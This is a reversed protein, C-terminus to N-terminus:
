KKLNFKKKGQQIEKLLAKFEEDSLQEQIQGVQAAQAIVAIAKIATEPHAIKLNGYRSIADKNMYKKAINELLLVQNMLEKENIEKDDMKM